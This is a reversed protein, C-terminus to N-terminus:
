LRKMAGYLYVIGGALPVARVDSFGAEELLACFASTGYFAGVSAPLYTYADRHQSVVRGIMPLVRRFYWLYVARLPGFQPEGFELIAVRGGDRMVRHMEALADHPRAVNRIGFGITVGDITGDGVPVHTADGRVLSIRGGEAHRELKARGQRLMQAAFDIGIVRRAGRASTCAALALDATGTCLDLVTEDGSLALSEVAKVRWGRDLGASLLRNLLDYRRAIGDFMGAIVDPSKDVPAPTFTPPAM